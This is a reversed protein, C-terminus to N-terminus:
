SKSSEVYNEIERMGKEISGIKSLPRSSNDDGSYLHSPSSAFGYISVLKRSHPLSCMEFKNLKLDDPIYTIAM